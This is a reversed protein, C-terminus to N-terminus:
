LELKKLEDLTYFKGERNIFKDLPAGTDRFIRGREKGLVEDQREASQRKLWNGFTLDGPVQGDMSARTSPPLDDIDFGLERWSKLVTLRVCRDNLHIPPRPGKGLEFIKGDLEACAPCVRTDLTANWVEGKILDSNAQYVADRAVDQTHAVATRVIATANRRNIAILGDQYANARTGRIRRVIQDTTEGQIVGLRVADRIKKAADDEIDAMWEGLLRGSFPRAVAAAYVQTTNIREFSIGTPLEKDFTSQQWTAEYEAFGELEYQLGDNMAAYLQSNLLYISSLQSEIRSLSFETGTLNDAAETLKARLEADSKSLLNIMRKVIGNKLYEVRVMHMIQADALNDNVSSM